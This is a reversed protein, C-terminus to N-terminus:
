TGKKTQYRIGFHGNINYRNRIKSVSSKYKNAFTKYMSYEMIHKFSDLKTSDVALKYYNYMGMIEANYTRLIELDDNKVLHTRHVPKWEKTKPNVVMAKYDFLKKRWAEHPVLLQCVLGLTRQTNGNKTKRIREQDRSVIVDYGLFRARNRSNTILTKEQSLELKLEKKLFNTIDRKIRNCDKKISIVGILFDDVYRVYQLRKFDEDMAEKYPLKQLQKRMEKINNLAEEKERETFQDWMTKYRKRTKYIRSQLSKYERNIKRAKGKDFWDKYSKMYWDFENLYINALIPSIIGGKPTGSYTKQYTWDELYGARLFKWLLDIFSEDDIRKRLLGILVHHDMSDFFSHVDGKIFWKIGRFSKQVRDLATHCSRNPRFGHSSGNFRGEYVSELIMRVIEQVLKDEFAPIGTVCKKGNKKSICVRRSPAPQYSRDRIKDILKQIRNTSIGDITKGDIGETMNGERAYINSYALLYFEENYLNRYLRRYKYGKRNSKLALNDLVVQPSRM